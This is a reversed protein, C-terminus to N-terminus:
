DARLAGVPSVRTARLAPILCTATSVALLVIAVTAFTRPDLASVDHLQSALVRTALAALGLGIALGVVTISLGGRLILAVVDRRGAGIAVRIGIEQRRQSVVYSLVGYIGVSALLLALAAFLGLLWGALRPTAVSTDVVDQMSQIAAIPLNPDLARIEARVPAVLSMPEGTTKVVLTMNRAPNGTSQQFQAFARYFKPKIEATVGNHRVDGVIGVVTIWPANPNNGGMRFRRGIPDQAAWYKRAM